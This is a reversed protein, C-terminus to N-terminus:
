RKENVNLVVELKGDKSTAMVNLNRNGDASAAILLGGENTTTRSRVTLGARELEKQYYDLVEDLKKETEFTAAQARAEGAESAFTGQPTTGPLVPVWDPLQAEGGARFTATGEDTRVTMQGAEDGEKQVQIEATKGGSSLTVRGNQIDDYGFTLEEGTKTDRFTVIRADKDAKVFEFDPSAAALVKATTAVPDEEMETAVEKVKHAVFYGAVTVIAGVVVMLGFCGIAVWALVPLGKKTESPIQPASAM